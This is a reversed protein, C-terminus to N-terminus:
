TTGSYQSFAAKALHLAAIRIPLPKSLSILHGEGFQSRQLRQFLVISPDPEAADLELFEACFRFFRYTVVRSNLDIDVDFLGAMLAAVILFYLCRRFQPRDIEGGAGPAVTGFAAVVDWGACEQGHVDDGPSPVMANMVTELETKSIAGSKDADAETFINELSRRDTCSTRMWRDLSSLALMNRFVHRLEMELWQQVQNVTVGRRRGSHGRFSARGHSKTSGERSVAKIRRYESALTARRKNPLLELGLVVFQRESVNSERSVGRLAYGAYARAVFKAVCDKAEGLPLTERSGPGSSYATMDHLKAAEPGTMSSIMDRIAADSAALSDEAAFMRGVIESAMLPTYDAEHGPCVAQWMGAVLRHRNVRASSYLHELTVDFSGPAAQQPPLPMHLNAYWICLQDLTVTPHAEAVTKGGITVIKEFESLTKMESFKLRLVRLVKQFESLTVIVSEGDGAIGLTQYIKNAFLANRLLPPLDGRRVWTNGVLAKMSGDAHLVIHGKRGTACRFAGLLAGYHRLVKIFGTAFRGVEALTIVGCDGDDLEDFLTDCRDPDRVLVEMDREARTFLTRLVKTQRKSSRMPGRDALSKTGHSARASRYLAEEDDTSDGGEGESDFAADEEASLHQHHQRRKVETSRLNRAFEGHPMMRHLFWVYFSDVTFGADDARTAKTIEKYERDVEARELRDWPEGVDVVGTFLHTVTTRFMQLNMPLSIESLAGTALMAMCVHIAAEILVGLQTPSVTSICGAGRQWLASFAYEWAYPMNLLPEDHVMETVISALCVVTTGTGDDHKGGLRGWLIELAEPDRSVFLLRSRHGRLKQLQQKPTSESAHRRGLRPFTCSRSPSSRTLSEHGSLTGSRAISPLTVDTRGRGLWDAAAIATSDRELRKPSPGDHLPPAKLQAIRRQVHHLQGNFTGVAIYHEGDVLDGGDEIEDEEMSYLKRIAGTNCPLSVNEALRRLFSDMSVVDRSSCTVTVGPTEPDTTHITIRIARTTAHLRSVRQEYDPDFRFCGEKRPDKPIQQWETVNDTYSLPRFRENGAAVYVRGHEIEDLGRVKKGTCTYIAFCHGLLGTAKSAMDLFQHWKAVYKPVSVQTGGRSMDGNAFLTIRKAKLDGSMVELASYDRKAFRHASGDTADTRASLSGGRDVSHLGTPSASTVDLRKVTRSKHKSRLRTAATAAAAAAAM